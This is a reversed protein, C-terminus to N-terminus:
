YFLGLRVKSIHITKNTFSTKLKPVDLLKLSGSEKGPM